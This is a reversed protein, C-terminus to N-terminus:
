TKDTPLNEDNDQLGKRFNRVAIALDGGIERLRKTGFLLAIILFVILLPGVGRLGMM